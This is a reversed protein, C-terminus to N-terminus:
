KKAEETAKPMIEEAIKDENTKVYDKKLNPPNHNAILDDQNKIVGYENADTM